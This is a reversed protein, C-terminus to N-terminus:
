RAIRVLRHVVPDEELRVEENEDVGRKAVVPAETGECGQQDETLEEAQGRPDSRVPVKSRELSSPPRRTPGEVRKLMQQPDGNKRSRAHARDGDRPPGPVQSEHHSGVVERSQRLSTGEQLADVFLEPPGEGVASREADREEVHVLELLEV